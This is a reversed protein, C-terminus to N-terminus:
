MPDGEETPMSAKAGWGVVWSLCCQLITKNEVVAFVCCGSVHAVRPSRYNKREVGPNEFESQQLESGKAGWWVRAAAAAAGAV